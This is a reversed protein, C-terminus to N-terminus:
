ETSSPLQKAMVFATEGDAYYNRITRAIEFGLKKYLEVAPLNSERVELYCEKAKYNVMAQTAERMLAFGIGKQQHRHLVAISIVHGKRTIGLLKFSPIGTEIRCMIYGVIEKNVEAVIFTEPYRKYLNMFFLPTYNEPLCERNIRIVGELDSPKFRRFKYNLELVTTLWEKREAKGSL